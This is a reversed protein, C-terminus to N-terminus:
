NTMKKSLLYIILFLILFGIGTKLYGMRKKYLINYKNRNYLCIPLSKKIFLNKYESELKDGCNTGDPPDNLAGGENYKRGLLACNKKNNIVDLNRLSDEYISMTSTKTRLYENEIEMTNRVIRAIRNVSENHESWMQAWTDLTNDIGMTDMKVNNCKGTNGEENELNYPLIRELEDDSTSGPVEQVNRVDCESLLNKLDTISCKKPLVYALPDDDLPLSYDQCIREMLKYSDYKCEKLPHINSYYEGDVYLNDNDQNPDYEIELGLDDKNEIYKNIVRNVKDDDLVSQRIEPNIIGNLGLKMMPCKTMLENNIDKYKNSIELSVNRSNNDNTESNLWSDYITSNSRNLNRIEQEYTNYAGTQCASIGRQFSNDTNSLYSCYKPLRISDDSFDSREDCSDENDNGDSICKCNEDLLNLRNMQKICKKEAELKASEISVLNDPSVHSGSGVNYSTLYISQYSLNLDLPFHFIPIGIEQLDLITFGEPCTGGSCAQINKPITTGDFTLVSVGEINRIGVYFYKNSNGYSNDLIRMKFLINEDYNYRELSTNQRVSLCEMNRSHPLRNGIVFKVTYSSKDIKDIIRLYFYSKIPDSDKHYGFKYIKNVMKLFNKRQANDLNSNIKTSDDGLYNIFLNNRPLEWYGFMHCLITKYPSNGYLSTTCLRGNEEECSLIDSCTTPNECSM